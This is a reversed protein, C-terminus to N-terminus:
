PKKSGMGAGHSMPMAPKVAESKPQAAEWKLIDMHGRAFQGVEANAAKWELTGTEVGKPTDTFVSRYSVTPVPSAPDTAQSQALAAFPVCAWVGCWILSKKM